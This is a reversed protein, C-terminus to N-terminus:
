GLQMGDSIDSLFVAALGYRALSNASTANAVNSRHYVDGIYQLASVFLNINGVSFIVIAVIPVAPSISPRTTWALIFISIPLAVSGIMAPLLRYEPPVQHPPFRRVQPQYFLKGCLWINIAGIVCGLAVALFVLGSQVLTFGYVRRLFQFPRRFYICRIPLAPRRYTRYGDYSSTPSPRHNLITSTHRRSPPPHYSESGILVWILSFVSFFVLTFQTWRWGMRDVLFVGLVPGLGPGLFPSLIWLLSPLGREAPTYTEALFGSGISLSPGYAFGAFFRLVCLGAFSTTFGAGLAFLGGVSAAVIFVAKRGATESLPGGIVPGLGLALVYTTLPLFAVTSSVGFEDILQQHAPSIISTGVSGAFAVIAAAALQVNKRWKPWNYPNEPDQDFNFDVSAKDGVKEVSEVKAQVVDDSDSTDAMKKRGKRKTSSIDNPSGRSTVGGITQKQSSVSESTTPQASIKNEYCM